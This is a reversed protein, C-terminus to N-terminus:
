LGEKQDLDTLRQREHELSLRRARLEHLERLMSERRTGLEHVQGALQELGQTAERLSQVEGELRAISTRMTDLRPDALNTLDGPMGRMGTLLSLAEERSLQGSRLAVEFAAEVRERSGTECLAAVKLARAATGNEETLLRVLDALRV